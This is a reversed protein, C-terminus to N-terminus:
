AIDILIHIIMHRNNHLESSLPTGPAHTTPLSSQQWITLPSLAHLFFILRYEISRVMFVRFLFLGTKRRVISHSSGCLWVNRRGTVRGLELCTM